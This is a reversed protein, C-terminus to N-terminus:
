KCQRGGGKVDLPDKNGGKLNFYYATTEMSISETDSTSTYVTPIIYRDGTNKLFVYIEITDSADDFTVSDLTAVINSYSDEKGEVTYVNDNGTGAGTLTLYNTTTESTLNVKSAGWIKAGIETAYYEVNGNISISLYVAAFAGTVFVSAMFICM